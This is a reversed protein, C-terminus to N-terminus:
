ARFKQLPRTLVGNEYENTVHTESPEGPLAKIGFYNNAASPSRGWGTELAVQALILRPDIGTEVAAAVAYPLMAQVFAQQSTVPTGAPLDERLRPLPPIAANNEAM